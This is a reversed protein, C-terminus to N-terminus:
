AGDGKPTTAVIQSDVWKRMRTWREASTENDPGADDNWWEIERAMPASINFAEGVAEGNEVDIETVDMKRAIAVAGITCVAGDAAVLEEKILAKVPMADLAEALERLFAQGRKGKISRIVTGRWLNARGYEDDGDDCYGHRSM